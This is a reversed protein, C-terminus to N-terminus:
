MEWCAPLTRLARMGQGEEPDDALWSCMLGEGGECEWANGLADQGGHDEQGGLNLLHTSTFRNSSADPSVRNQTLMPRAGRMQQTVKSDELLEAGEGLGAAGGGEWERSGSM